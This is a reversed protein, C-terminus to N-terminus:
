NSINTATGTIKVGNVYATKGSAIDSATATADSTDLPTYTGTVFGDNTYAKNGGFYYYADSKAVIESAKPPNEKIDIYVWGGNEYRYVGFTIAPSSAISSNANIGLFKVVEPFTNQNTITTSASSSQGIIAISGEERIYTLGDQSTYSVTYTKTGLGATRSVNFVASTGNITVKTNLVSGAISLNTATKTATLVVRKKFYLGYTTAGLSAETFPNNYVVGILGEVPTDADRETVSSYLRITNGASLTGTVGFMTVGEKINQPKVKDLKENNIAILKELIADDM